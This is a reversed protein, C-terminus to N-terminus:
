KKVINVYPYICMFKTLNLAKDYDLDNDVIIENFGKEMEKMINIYLNPLENKILENNFKRMQNGEYIIEGNYIDKFNISRKNDKKYFEYLSNLFINNKYENNFRKNLVFEIIDSKNKTEKKKYFIKYLKTLKSKTFLRFIFYQFKYCPISYYKMIRSVTRIEGNIVNLKGIENNIYNGSHIRYKIFDFPVTEVNLMKCENTTCLWFPTNWRLYNEKVKSLYVEKRYFGVDSYLNRGLWLLQNAITSEKNIYKNIKINGTLNSNEDIVLLQGIIADLNPNEEMYAISKDLMDNSALLDDSHLVFIYDGTIYNLGNIIARLQDENDQYIYKFKGELKNDEIYKSVINKTEDKSGDDVIVLEYNNYTQSIVSDFTEIISESDNYTPMIISIKKNCKDM